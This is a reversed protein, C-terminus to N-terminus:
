QQLFVCFESQDLCRKMSEKDCSCVVHESIIQLRAGSVCRTIEYPYGTTICEFDKRSSGTMM